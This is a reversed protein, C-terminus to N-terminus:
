LTIKFLNWTVSDTSSNNNLIPHDYLVSVNGLQNHELLFLIAGISMPKTGLPLVFLKQNENISLYIDNLKEFIALPNAAPCYHFQLEINRKKIIPLFNVYSNMDWGYSYPPMGFILKCNAGLIDYEEFALGLREGEYGCLVVISDSTDYSLAHNPIALFGRIKKSLDFYRNETLRQVSVVYQAPEIYLIDINLIGLNKYTQCLILLEAFDLSTADIIINQKILDNQVFFEEIDDINEFKDNISWRFTEADYHFRLLLDANDTLYEIAKISREDLSRGFFAMSWNRSSLENSNDGYEMVINM